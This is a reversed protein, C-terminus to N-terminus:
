QAVAKTEARDGANGAGITRGGESVADRALAGGRPLVQLVGDQISWTLGASSTLRTLEAAALGHLITGEAFTADLAGLTAGRLATVANGAGVGMADAIHQVVQQLTSGSAFSRAVRASRLAHEGDGATIRVIWDTGEREPVGKRKDGRFLLALGDVYGAQVEVFTSRRPAALIERRHAESLNHIELDCTGAYGYLSRFLM